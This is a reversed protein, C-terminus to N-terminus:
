VESALLFTSLDSMTRESRLTGSPLPRAPPCRRRRAELVIMSWGNTSLLLWNMASESPSQKSSLKSTM